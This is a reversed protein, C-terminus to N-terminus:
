SKKLAILHEVLEHMKTHPNTTRTANNHRELRKANSIATDLRSIMADFVDKQGKQYNAM